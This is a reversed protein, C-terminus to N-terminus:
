LVLWFMSGMYNQPVNPRFYLEGENRWSFFYSHSLGLQLIKHLNRFEHLIIVSTWNGEQVWAVIGQLCNLYPKKDSWWIVTKTIGLELLSAFSVYM